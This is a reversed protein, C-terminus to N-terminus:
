SGRQARRTTEDILGAAVDRVKINGTQSTRVLFAFARDADIRYREMVIGIAQGILTRTALAEAMSEDHRSWGTAIAVLRAFMVALHRTEVDIAHPRHAYLNLSGQAHPEPRFQFSLQSRLGLMAAARPGFAPWRPDTALDDVQVVPDALVATLCPGEGLEYQLKDARVAVADTPALTQIEGTRSTVSISAHDIGPLTDAASATIRALTEDLDLPLQLSEAVETMVGILEELEV